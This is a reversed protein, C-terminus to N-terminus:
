TTMILSRRYGTYLLIVAIIMVLGLVAFSLIFSHNESTIGIILSFVIGTMNMSFSNVSLITARQDAIMEQAFAELKTEMIATILFISVMFLISIDKYLYGLILMMGCIFMGSYLFLEMKKKIIILSSLGTGTMQSLMILTLLGGYLVGKINQEHLWLQLFEEITGIIALYIICYFLIRLLPATHRIQSIAEIFTKKFNKTKNVQKTNHYPIFFAAFLAISATIFSSYFVYNQAYENLLAGSLFAIAIGATLLFRCRGNVKQYHDTLNYQELAEYLLAELAGSCFSESIGWLIFGAAFLYFNTSLMWTFCAALKAAQGIILVGKKNWSDALIGSPIELIVVTAAWLAILISTNTASQLTGNVILIYVAYLPLLHTFLYYIYFAFLRPKNKNNM